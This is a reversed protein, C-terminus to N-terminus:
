ESDHDDIELPDVPTKSAYNHFNEMRVMEKTAKASHHIKMHRNRIYKTTYSKTCVYCKFM